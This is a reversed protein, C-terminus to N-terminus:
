APSLAAVVFCAALLLTAPTMLARELASKSVFNGLPNLAFLAAFVWTAVAIPLSDGGPGLLGARTLIVWAAATLAVAAALSGRRLNTPLVRHQGGWAARGLPRGAALLLQLAVVAALVVTALLAATQALTM